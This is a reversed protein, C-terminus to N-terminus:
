HSHFLGLCCRCARSTGSVEIPIGDVSTRPSIPGDVVPLFLTAGFELKVVSTVVKLDAGTRPRRFHNIRRKVLKGRGYPTVISDEDEDEDLSDEDSDEEKKKLLARRKSRALETQTTEEREVNLAILDSFLTTIVPAWVQPSAVAAKSMPASGSLRSTLRHVERCAVRVLAECPPRTCVPVTSYHAKGVCWATYHSAILPWASEMGEQGRPVVLETVIDTLLGLAVPATTAVWSDPFPQDASLPGESDRKALAYAKRLDGNGGHRMDSFSAEMMLEAPGIERNPTRHLSKFALLSEDDPPPPLPLPEVLFDISSVSPSESTIRVVPSIDNECGTQIAPILTQELVAVLQPTSFIHGHRLLIARFALVSSRQLLCGVGGASSKAASRVGEALGEFLPRWLAM